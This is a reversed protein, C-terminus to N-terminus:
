IVGDDIIFNNNLWDYLSSTNISTDSTLGSNKLISTESQDSTFKVAIDSADYKLRVLDNNNWSSLDSSPVAIPLYYITGDKWSENNSSSMKTVQLGLFEDNLDLTGQSSSQSNIEVLEYFKETADSIVSELKIALCLKDNESKPSVISEDLSVGEKIEIFYGHINCSGSTIKGESIELGSIVFSDRSTLRNVINSINYETTMRAQRDISDDRRSSPFIKIANSNIFM